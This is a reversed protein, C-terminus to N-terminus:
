WIHEAPPLPMDGPVWDDQPDFPPVPPDGKAAEAAAIQHDRVIVDALTDAGFTHPLPVTGANNAQM